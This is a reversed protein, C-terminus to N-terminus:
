WGTCTVLMPGPGKVMLGLRILLPGCAKLKALLQGPLMGAPPLQAIATVNLGGAPECVLEVAVRRIAALAPLLGMLTASVPVSGFRPMLGLVDDLGGTSIKLPSVCVNVMLLLPGPFRFLMLGTTDGPLANEMLEFVQVPGRPGNPVHWTVTNATMVPPVVR